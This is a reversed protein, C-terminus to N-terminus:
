GSRKNTLSWQSKQQFNMKGWNDPVVARTAPAPAPAATPATAAVRRAEIGLVDSFAAQTWKERTALAELQKYREDGTNISFGPPLGVGASLEPKFESM